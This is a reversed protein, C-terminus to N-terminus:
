DVFLFEKLNFLAHCLDTWAQQPNTGPRALQATLFQEAAASEQPLPRRALAELYLQELRQSTSDPHSRLLRAAWFRAQEAVFPDNMLILAQAPVNSVTRHGVPSAPVPMDFALMMPSLFNRRVELYLSRRGEGDLPGSVEPRGRGDMFPTLRVPVSPGGLQPNLRGSVALITDRLSEADLRRLLARHWRANNPDLREAEANTAASRQQWTKTLLLRRVLAKISYGSRRFDAALGDLLEPHSPPEGLAGFNDVSTVLGRGFLQSWVWNVTVRAFLPNDPHVIAHALERRGSGREIPDPTGNSLAELFRRPVPQGTTRPNGRIFVPEDWGDADAMAAVLLPERIAAEVTRYAEVNSKPVVAPLANIWAELFLAEEASVTGPAALWQQVLQDPAAPRVAPKLSPPERHSSTLAAGVAAWGDPQAAAAGLESAPDPVSFDAVEIWARRGRWMSLDITIWQPEPHQLAQRLPGYIPARILTFGELVINVRSGQGAVWLHLYNDSLVFAPSRLAGQFKRSLSASHRWGPRVIGVKPPDSDKLLIPQAAASPDAAFAEGDAYWGNLPIAHDEPRLDITASPSADPLFGNTIGAALQQALLRRFADRQRALEAVQAQRPAPNDVARIAYRSSALMGFLAYYDRTSIADFKHDHCRACSVTLGLFSKTIVDLQNDIFELQHHRVDVPSHVQQGLWYQTTALLSENSGDAPNTRPNPLLDGAIQERAFQDFPLDANFARVVYDRYRWAGLIAYDFEHGLTEAYRVKDLWHRAWREGFHPSALLQDVVRSLAEESADAMFAEVASPNPPLGTLVLHARRILARRDAPPAPSLGDAELAQLIFRDVPDKPWEQHRVAPPDVPQIPQWAWHAQRRAALDFADKATDSALSAPSDPWVAGDAIWRRFHAVVEDDLRNRPPMQLDPDQYAIARVLLSRDPAGPEIAPGTEGGRLMADRSDLLLGGRVRESEASHCRYCQDVLVPRIRQEFFEVKASDSEARAPRHLAAVALILSLWRTM